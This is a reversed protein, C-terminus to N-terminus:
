LPHVEYDKRLHLVPGEVIRAEDDVCVVRPLERESM